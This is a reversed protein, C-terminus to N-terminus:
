GLEIVLCGYGELTHESSVNSGTLLDKGSALNTLKKETELTNLVFLLKRDKATRMVVEVGQPLDAILPKIGAKALVIDDLADVLDDTLYTALYIVQGKGVKRLTAAARGQFLSQVM